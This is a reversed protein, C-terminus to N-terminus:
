PQAVVGPYAQFSLTPTSIRQATPNPRASCRISCKVSRTAFTKEGFLDIVNLMKRREHESYALWTFTSPM